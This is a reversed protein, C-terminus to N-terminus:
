KKLNSTDYLYLDYIDLVRTDNDIVMSFDGQKGDNGVENKFQNMQILVKVIILQQKIIMKIKSFM